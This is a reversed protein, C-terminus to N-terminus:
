RRAPGDGFVAGRGAKRKAKRWLKAKLKVNKEEVGKALEAKHEM